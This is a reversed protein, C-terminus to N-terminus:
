FRHQLRVIFRVPDDAANNIAKAWYVGFDGFDVGAGVDVKFSGLPPLTNGKVYVPDDPRATGQDVMWGRGADAFVVWATRNNFGPRWWDDDDDDRWSSFLFRSRLQAQALAIRDCQAPTGPQMVGNHCGLVDGGAMPERFTYGPMTGPGGVGLRRQTPLPDGAVWGGAAVRLDLSMGPAVRSYRRLDVFARSYWVDEPSMPAFSIVPAGYRTIRGGGQELEAGVYWGGFPSRTRARTDVRLRTTLLHVNGADMYPNPRWEKSGRNFSWPDRAERNSWQEDSLSVTLDVDRGAVFRAYAAGGHKVYYDRYDRHLFASALGVETDGMQWDETPQVVDFARAGLAIGVPKGFLVEAKADHGISERDWAMPKSTRGVAFLDVNVGGWGTSRQIRPGAVFSWGEVRNYARSALYVLESYSNSPGPTWDRRIRRRRWWSDDYNPAGEIELEDGDLRYRLLETQQIIEGGVAGSDRGIIEGGIVILDRTIRASRALRVDANIAVLTGRITGAITIPGNLVAVSGDIVRADSVTYSGNVRTTASLNWIDEARRAITTIPGETREQAAAPAPAVAAILTAVLVTMRSAWKLIRM